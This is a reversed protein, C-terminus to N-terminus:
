RGPRNKRKRGNRQKRALDNIRTRIRKEHESTEEDDRQRVSAFTPDDTRSVLRILRAALYRPKRPKAAAAERVDTLRVERFAPTVAEALVHVLEGERDRWPQITLQEGELYRGCIREVNVFDSNTEASMARMRELVAIWGPDGQRAGVFALMFVDLAESMLDRTERPATPAGGGIITGAMARILLVLEEASAGMTAGLAVRVRPSNVILDGTIAVTPKGRGKTSRVTKM